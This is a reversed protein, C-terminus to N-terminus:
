IAMLKRSTPLEPILPIEKGGTATTTGGRNPRRSNSLPTKRAAPTITM